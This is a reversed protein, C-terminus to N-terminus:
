SEGLRERVKHREKERNRWGERERKRVKKETKIEYHKKIRKYIHVFRFTTFPRNCITCEKGYKERMMRM